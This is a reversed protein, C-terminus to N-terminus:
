IHKRTEHSNLIKAVPGKILLEVSDGRRDQVVFIAEIIGNQPNSSETAVFCAVIMSTIDWRVPM